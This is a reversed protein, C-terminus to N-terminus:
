GGYVITLYINFKRFPNLFYAVNCTWYTKKREIVFNLHKDTEASSHGCAM